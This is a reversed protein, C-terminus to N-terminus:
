AHTTEWYHCDATFEASEFARRKVLGPLKKSGAYVWKNFEAGAGYCDGANLKRLLTSRALAGEGVNFTFSLLQNYQRQTVKHTVLRSIAKGAVSTDEALRAECEALTARQGLFVNRTSGTCITPVNVSDLYATTRTGEHKAIQYLGVPDITFAGALALVIAGVGMQKAKPKQM